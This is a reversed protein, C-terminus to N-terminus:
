TGIQTEYNRINRKLRQYSPLGDLVTNSVGDVGLFIRPRIGVGGFRETEAADQLVARQPPGEFCAVFPEEPIGFREPINLLEEPTASFLWDHVAFFTDPAVAHVCALAQAFDYDTTRQRVDDLTLSYKVYYRLEGPTLYEDQLQPLYDTFFSRAAPSRFDTYVILTLPADPKGLAPRGGIDPHRTLLPITMNASTLEQRFTQETRWLGHALLGMVLFIATLLAFLQWRKM